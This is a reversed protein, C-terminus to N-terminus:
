LKAKESLYWRLHLDREFPYEEAYRKSINVLLEDIETFIKKDSFKKAKIAYLIALIYSVGEKVDNERMWDETDELYKIERDNYVRDSYDRDRSLVEDILLLARHGAAIGKEIYDSLESVSDEYSAAMMFSYSTYHYKTIKYGIRIDKDSALEFKKAVDPARKRIKDTLKDSDNNITRYDFALAAVENKLNLIRSERKKIISLNSSTPMERESPDPASNCQHFGSINALNKAFDIPTVWRVAPENEIGGKIIGIVGDQNFVPGGSMGYTFDNNVSYRGGSGNQNGITGLTPQFDEKLPFGFAVIDMGKTVKASLCLPLPRVQEPPSKFKMLAVDATENPDTTLELPYRLPSYRSSIRGYIINKDKQSQEQTLWEELIHYATLLYGKESILFGTGLHKEIGGNEKNTVPVEIFVVSKLATPTWKEALSQASAQTNIILLLILICLKM